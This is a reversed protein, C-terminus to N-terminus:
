NYNYTKRNRKTEKKRKKKKNLPVAVVSLKVLDSTPLTLHTYSVAGVEDVGLLVVGAGVLLLGVVDPVEEPQVQRKYM